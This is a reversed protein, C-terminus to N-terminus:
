SRAYLNMEKQFCYVVYTCMGVGVVFALGGSILDILFALVLLFLIQPGLGTQKGELRRQKSIKELEFAYVILLINPFLGLTLVSYLVIMGYSLRPKGTLAEMDRAYAPLLYFVFYLTVTIAQLFVTLSVDRYIVQKPLSIAGSTGILGLEQASSWAEDGERIAPTSASILGGSVLVRIESLELPGVPEQASNSYYYRQTSM